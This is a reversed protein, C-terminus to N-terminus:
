PLPHPSRRSFWGEKAVRVVGVAERLNADPIVAEPRFRKEGARTAYMAVAELVGALNTVPRGFSRTVAMGKRVPPELELALCPIGRLELVIRELVVTGVQRALRIDLDRLM